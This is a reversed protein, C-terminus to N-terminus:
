KWFLSPSLCTQEQGVSRMMERMQISPDNQDTVICSPSETLRTSATVDKVQDGLVKKIKKILPKVAKESDKDSDDKIDEAADSHTM